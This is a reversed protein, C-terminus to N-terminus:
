SVGRPLTGRRSRPPEPDLSDEDAQPKAVPTPATRRDARDFLDDIAGLNRATITRKPAQPEERRAVRRTSPDDQIELEEPNLEVESDLGEYFKHSFGRVVTHESQGTRVEKDQRQVEAVLTLAKKAADAVLSDRSTGLMEVPGRVGGAAIHALARIIRDREEISASRIKGGLPMVAQAGADGLARAIEGWIETPEDILAQCLALTGTATRLQGLALAAGQRLYAKKAGLVEVLYPESAPGFGTMAPLVRSAELRPMRGLAQTLGPLVAAERRECLLLAADVRLEADDLMKVLHENSARPLEDRLLRRFTPAAAAPKDNFSTMQQTSRTPHPTAGKQEVARHLVDVAREFSKGGHPLQKNQEHARHVLEALRQGPRLTATATHAVQRQEDFFAVRLSAFDDLAQLTPETRGDEPDLPIRFLGLQGPRLPAHGLTVLLLSYTPLNCLEVRAELPDLGPMPAIACAVPERGDLYLALRASAQAFRAEATPPATPAARHIATAPADREDDDDDSDDDDDDLSPLDRPKPETRDPPELPGLVTSSLSAFVARSASVAPEAAVEQPAPEAAPPTPTPTPTPTAPILTPRSARVALAALAETVAGAGALLTTLEALGFCLRPRLLAPTCAVRAAALKQLFAILEDLERWRSSAPLVLAAGDDGTLSPSTAGLVAFPAEILTTGRCRECTAAGLAGQELVRGLGPSGSDLVLPLSVRLQQGCACRVLLAQHAEGPSM